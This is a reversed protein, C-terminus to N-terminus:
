VLSNKCRLFRILGRMLPKTWLRDSYVLVAMPKSYITQIVVLISIQAGHQYPFGAVYIDRTIHM